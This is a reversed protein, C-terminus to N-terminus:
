TKCILPLSTHQYIHAHSLIVSSSKLPFSLLLSPLKSSLVPCFLHPCSLHVCSLHACSLVPGRLNCTRNFCSQTSRLMHLRQYCNRNHQITNYQITVGNDDKVRPVFNITRVEVDDNVLCSGIFLFADKRLIVEGIFAVDVLRQM